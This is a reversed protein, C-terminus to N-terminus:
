TISVVNVAWCDLPPLPPLPPPLLLLPEPLKAGIWVAAGASMPAAAMATKARYAALFIGPGRPSRLHSCWLASITILNHLVVSLAM